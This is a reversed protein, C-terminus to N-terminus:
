TRAKPGKPYRFRSTPFAVSELNLVTGENAALKHWLSGSNRRLRINTQEKSELEVRPRHGEIMNKIDAIVGRQALIDSLQPSIRVRQEPSSTMISDLQDYLRTLQWMQIQDEDLLIRLISYLNDGPIPPKASIKFKRFATDLYTVTFDSRLYWTVPNVDVMSSHLNRFKSSRLPPSPCLIQPFRTKAMEEFAGCCAQVDQLAQHYADPLTRGRTPPGTMGERARHVKNAAERLCHWHKITITIM